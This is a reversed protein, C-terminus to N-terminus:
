NQFVPLASSNLELTEPVLKELREAPQEIRIQEPKKAPMKYTIPFYTECKEREEFSLECNECRAWEKKLYTNTPPGSIQYQCKQILIIGEYFPCRKNNEPDYSCIRCNERFDSDPSQHDCKEIM